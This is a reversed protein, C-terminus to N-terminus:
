GRRPDKEDHMEELDRDIRRAADRRLEVSSRSGTRIHMSKMEQKAYLPFPDDRASITVYRRLPTESSSRPGPQMELSENFGSPVRVADGIEPLSGDCCSRCLEEYYEHNREGFVVYEAYHTDTTPCSAEHARLNDLSLRPTSQMPSDAREQSSSKM